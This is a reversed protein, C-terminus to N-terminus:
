SCLAEAPLIEAKPYLTSIVLEYKNAYMHRARQQMKPSLEAYTLWCSKLVKSRSQGCNNCTKSGAENQGFNMTKFRSEYCFACRWPGEDTHNDESSFIPENPDDDLPGSVTPDDVAPVVEFTWDRYNSSETKRAQIIDDPQGPRKKKFSNIYVDEAQTALSKDGSVLFYYTIPGIPQLGDFIELKVKGSCSDQAHRMTVFHDGTHLVWVSKGFKLDDAVKIGEDIEMASLLGLTHPIPQQVIGSYFGQKKRTGPDWAGFNGDGIRGRILLCMLDSSCLWHPGDVLSMGPGRLNSPGVTLAAAGVLAAPTRIKQSAEMISLASGDPMIVQKQQYQTLIRSLIASIAVTLRTDFPEQCDRQMWLEGQIVAHVGCPGNLFQIIRDDRSLTDDLRQDKWAKPLDTLEPWISDWHDYPPRFQALDRTTSDNTELGGSLGLEIAMSLDGSAAALLSQACELPCGLADAVSQAM